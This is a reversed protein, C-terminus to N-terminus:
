SAYRQDKRTVKLAVIKTSHNFPSPDVPLPRVRTEPFGTFDPPIPIREDISLYGDSCLAKLMQLYDQGSVFLANNIIVLYGLHGVLPRIKNIVRHSESVLDVRGASTVSFFPPDVFICDFLEGTRKLRNVSVWFDGTQFDAKHIPFGNLTYSEKALNLYQRNLDLQIVQRAGGAMAAVGLSGTYAFTNLVRKEQLHAAAWARLNRTDLYFSADTSLTLDVAYWVNNEQIHRDPSQGYILRGHREAPQAAARHKVVVAKLWPLLSLYFSQAFAMKEGAQEPPEAYNFLVLTRAYLDVVLDPDGEIFGNFLRVATNHQGDLFPFREQLARLLITELSFAEPKM